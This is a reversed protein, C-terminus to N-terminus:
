NCMECFSLMEQDKQFIEMDQTELTARVEIGDGNSTDMLMFGLDCSSGFTISAVEPKGWGFDVKYFPFGCLSSCWFTRKSVHNEFEENTLRSLQSEAHQCALQLSQIRKVKMREKRIESLIMSLSAESSFKTTVLMSALFNGVSTPPLKPVLKNRINMPVVLLSTKCTSSRAVVLTKYLLSSLAEFLTFNTISLTSGCELVKNKLDILKSNPFVFKRTVINDCRQNYESPFSTTDPPSQIFHPSFALVQKHDVSGYRAVSAWYTVFSGLTCGDGVKHSMSVALAIGGCGFYNLQVGLVNTKHPANKWVMGHPFLQSCTDDENILHQLPTDHKAEVFVVGEDNCDIYPANPKHLRGAFPYCHTLSYSLSKKLVQAKNILSSHEDNPYLLILPIYEHSIYRSLCSLNYTQFHSPTPSSPKILEQSVITHVQPWLMNVIMM